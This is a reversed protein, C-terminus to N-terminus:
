HAEGPPATCYVRPSGWANNADRSARTDLLTLRTVGTIDLDIHQPADTITAQVARVEIDEAKVIFRGTGGSQPSSADKGVWVSLRTCKGGVLWTRRNNPDSVSSSYSGRISNPYPDVETGIMISNVTYHGNGWAVSEYATLDFWGETIRPAPQTATPPVPTNRQEEIATPKTTPASTAVDGGTPLIPNTTPIEVGTTAGSRTGTDADDVGFMREALSITGDLNALLAMLAAAIAAGAIYWKKKRGNSQPETMPSM